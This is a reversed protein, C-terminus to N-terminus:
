LPINHAANFGILNIIITSTYLIWANKSDPEVWWKREISTTTAQYTFTISLVLLIFWAIVSFWMVGLSYTLFRNILGLLVGIFAALLLLVLLMGISAM